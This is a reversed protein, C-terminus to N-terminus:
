SEITFAGGSSSMRGVDHIEARVFGRRCDRLHGAAVDIGEKLTAPSSVFYPGDDDRRWGYVYLM